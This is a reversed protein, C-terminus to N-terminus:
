RDESVARCENLLGNQHAARREHKTSSRSENSGLLKLLHQWKMMKYCIANPSVSAFDQHHFHIAALNLYFLALRRSPRRPM